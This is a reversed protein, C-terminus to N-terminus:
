RGASNYPATSVISIKIAANWERGDLISLKDFGNRGGTVMLECCLLTCYVSSNLELNLRSLSVIYAIPKAM